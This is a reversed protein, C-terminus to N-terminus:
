QVLAHVSVVRGIIRDGEELVHPRNERTPHDPVGVYRRPNVDDRQLRRLTVEETAAIYIAAVGGVLADPSSYSKDITVISGDPIAPEMSDGKVRVYDTRSPHPCWARHIVAPGEVDHDTIRRGPGAATPDRLLPLVYFESLDAAAKPAIRAVGEEARPIALGLERIHDAETPPFMPGRGNLLWLPSVGYAKIVRSLVHAPITRGAEYRSVNSHSEGIKRAFRLKGRPGEVKERLNHFRQNIANADSVHSSRGM